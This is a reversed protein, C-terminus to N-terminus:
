KNSSCKEFFEESRQSDPGSIVVLFDCTANILLPFYNFCFISDPFPGYRRSTTVGAIPFENCCPAIVPGNLYPLVSIKIHTSILFTVNEHNYQFRFLQSTTTLSEFLKKNYTFVAYKFLFAWLAGTVEICNEGSLLCSRERDRLTNGVQKSIAANYYAVSLSLKISHKKQSELCLKKQLQHSTLTIPVQLM